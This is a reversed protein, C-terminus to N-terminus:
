LKLNIGVKECAKVTVSVIDDLGIMERLGRERLDAVAFEGVARRYIHQRLTTMISRTEFVSPAIVKDFLDNVYEKPDGLYGWQIPQTASTTTPSENPEIKRRVESPDTRTMVRKKKKPAGPDAPPVQTRVPTTPPVWMTDMGPPVGQLPTQLGMEENMQRFLEEVADNTESLTM